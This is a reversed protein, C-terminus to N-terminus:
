PCVYVSVNFFFAFQAPCWEHCTNWLLNEITKLALLAPVLTFVMLNERVLIIIGFDWLKLVGYRARGM